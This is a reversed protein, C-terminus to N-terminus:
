PMKIEISLQESVWNVKAGLTEAVFRLPVMTVYNITIPQPDKANTKAIEKISKKEPLNMNIENSGMRITIDRRGSEWEIAAGLHEFVGRLPVYTVNNIVLPPVSLDLAEGEVKVDIAKEVLKPKTIVKDYGYTWEMITGNNLLAYQQRNWGNAIDVAGEIGKVQVVPYNSGSWYTSLYADWMWVTGDDKIISFLSSSGGGELKVVHDAGKIELPDFLKGADPYSKTNTWMKVTGDFQVGAARQSSAAIIASENIGSIVTPKRLRDPNTEMLETGWTWIQDGNDLAVGSLSGAAISKISSLGEVKIPLASPSHIRDLYGWQWVTGDSTLAISQDGQASIAVVEELGKVQVPKSVGGRTSQEGTGLQGNNNNGSAWVTGDTKLILVHMSGGSIAKVGDIHMRVPSQVPVTSGNGLLGTDRFGGWAWASGDKKIAYVAWDSASISVVDSLAKGSVSKTSEAHSLGPIIFLITSLVSGILIKLKNRSRLLNTM